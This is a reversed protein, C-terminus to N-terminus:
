HLLASTIKFSLGPRSLVAASRADKHRARSQLRTKSLGVAEQMSSSPDAPDGPGDLSGIARARVRPPLAIRAQEAELFGAEHAPSSWKEV